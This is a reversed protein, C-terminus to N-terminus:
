KRKSFRSWQLLWSKSLTPPREDVQMPLPPLKGVSLPFHLLFLFDVLPKQEHSPVSILSVKTVQSSGSAESVLCAVHFLKIFFEPKATRSATLSTYSSVDSSVCSLNQTDEVSSAGQSMNSFTTDHAVSHSEIVLSLDDTDPIFTSYFMGNVYPLMLLELVLHGHFLAAMHNPPTLCLEGPEDVHYHKSVM